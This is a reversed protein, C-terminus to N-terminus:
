LHYSNLFSSAIQPYPCNKEREIDDFTDLRSGLDGTHCFMLKLLEAIQIALFFLTFM